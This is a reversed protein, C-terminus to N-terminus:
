LRTVCSSKRTVFVNEGRVWQDDFASACTNFADECGTKTREHLEIIISDVSSIWSPLGHLVERESGEIDMKLIDVHSIRHEAMVTDVTVGDVILTKRSSRDCSDGAEDVMFGWSGLGSDYLNIKKNSHWLAAQSTRINPYPSVNRKLLEYNGPDPEIAVITAEPFRSAFYISALGINAGADIITQPHKAASFAYEEDLFVQVFVEADSSPVRLSIPHKIQKPTVTLISETKLAKGWLAILVGRPGAVRCVALLMRLYRVASIVGPPAAKRIYHYSRRFM